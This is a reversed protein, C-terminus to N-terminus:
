RLSGTYVAQLTGNTFFKGNINGDSTFFFQELSGPLSSSLCKISFGEFSWTGHVERTGWKRTYTGDRQFQFLYDPRPTGDAKTCRLLVPKGLFQDFSAIAKGEGLELLKKEVKAQTIGTTSSLLRQYIARAHQKAPSSESYEAWGDALTLWQEDSTPPSLELTALQKLATDEAKALYPLGKEWDGKDLCYFRGIAEAQQPSLSELPTESAGSPLTAYKRNLDAARDAQQNFYEIWSAARLRRALPTIDDLLRKAAAYNDSRFLEHAQGRYYEFLPNAAAVSRLKPTLSKSAALAQAVSDVRFRESLATLAKIATEADGIAISATLAEDLLVYQDIPRNESEVAVKLFQTARAHLTKPDRGAYAQPFLSQISRLTTRKDAATPIPHRPDDPDAIAVQTTEAESECPSSAEPADYRVFPVTASASAEPHEFRFLAVALPTPMEAVETSYCVLESAEPNELTITTESKTVVTFIMPPQDATLPLALEDGAQLRELGTKVSRWFRALGRFHAEFNGSELLEVQQPDAKASQYLQYAKSYDRKSIALWIPQQAREAATSPNTVATPLAAPEAAISPNLALSLTCLASVTAALMNGRVGAPTHLTPIRILLHHRPPNM